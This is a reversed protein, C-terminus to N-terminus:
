LYGRTEIVASRRNHEVRLRNFHDAYELVSAQAAEMDRYYRKYMYYIARNKVLDYGEKFWPSTYTV